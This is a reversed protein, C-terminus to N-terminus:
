KFYVSKFIWNLINIESKISLFNIKLNDLDIKKFSKNEICKELLQENKEIYSNIKKLRRLTILDRNLNPNYNEEM